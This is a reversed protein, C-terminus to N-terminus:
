QWMAKIDFYLESHFPKARCDSNGEIPSATVMPRKFIAEPAINSPHQSDTLAQHDPQAHRSTEGPGSTKTRKPPIRCVSPEPPPSTPPRRTAYWRQPPNSPVGGEFSSVTTAQSSDQPSSARLKAERSVSPDTHGGRIRAMNSIPHSTSTTKEFPQGLPMSYLSLWNAFHHLTKRLSSYPTCFSFFAKSTKLYAQKLSRKIERQGNTNRMSVTPIQLTAFHTKSNRVSNAVEKLNQLTKALCLQTTFHTQMPKEFKALCFQNAFNECPSNPTTFNECARAFQEIKGGESFIQFTKGDTKSNM